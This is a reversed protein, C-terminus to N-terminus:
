QSESRDESLFKLCFLSLSPKEQGVGSRCPLHSPSIRPVHFLGLERAKDEQGHAAAALCVCVVLAILKIVFFVRISALRTASIIPQELFVTSLPPAPV